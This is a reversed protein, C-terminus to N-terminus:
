QLYEFALARSLQVVDLQILQRCCLERRKNWGRGHELEIPGAPLWHRAFLVGVDDDLCGFITGSLDDEHPPIEFHVLFAFNQQATGRVPGMGVVLCEFLGVSEVNWRLIDDFPPIM